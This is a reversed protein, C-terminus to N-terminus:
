APLCDTTRAALRTAPRQHDRGVPSRPPSAAPLGPRRGPRQHTQLQPWLAAVVPSRWQRSPDDAPNSTPPPLLPEHSQQSWLKSGRPRSPITSQACVVHFGAHEIDNAGLRRPRSCLDPSFVDITGFRCMSQGCVVDRGTGSQPKPGFRSVEVQRPGDGAGKHAQHGDEATSHHGQGDGAGKHPRTSTERPATTASSGTSPGSQWWLVAPSALVGRCVGVRAPWAVVLSGAVLRFWRSGEGTAAGDTTVVSSWCGPSRGRGLAASVRRRQGDTAM